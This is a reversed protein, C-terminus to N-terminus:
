EHPLAVQQLALLRKVGNAVNRSSLTAGSINPIDQDLRLPDHITKGVFRARWKADRVEGGHTERYSMIEVGLVSGEPSIALAYTIFEHKGVVEDVVFWGLFADNKAVKWVAQREARQAVGSLAKIQKRQAPTLTVAQDAFATADPFLVAQAQTVTLYDVAYAPAVLAAAPLLAMRLLDQRIM